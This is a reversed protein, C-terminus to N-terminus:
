GDFAGREQERTRPSMMISVLAGGGPGAEIEITAVRDARAFALVSTSAQVSTISQWGFGPMDRQFAAFAEAPAQPLTMVLRGTWRDMSGLLISRETDLVAGPPIPVDTTNQFAAMDTGASQSVPAMVVPEKACAALLLLAAILAGGYVGKIGFRVGLM